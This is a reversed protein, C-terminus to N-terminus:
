SDHPGKLLQGIYYDDLMSVADRSHGKDYFAASADGGAYEVIIDAGGPHEELFRTVDYVKDEVIIWCDTFDSHKKVDDRTYTRPLIDSSQLPSAQNM